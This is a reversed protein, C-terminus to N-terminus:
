LIRSAWLARQVSTVAVLFAMGSFWWSLLGPWLLCIAIFIVTEAGEILGSPMILATKRTDGAREPMTYNSRKEMLASLALWSVANVYFSGLLLGLPVALGDPAPSGIVLGVPVAAYVIFDALLDFYGGRDSTTGQQRAVAGDLGDILRNALWLGLALNQNSAAASGASGIGVVLGIATLTTPSVSGLARALPALAADRVGRLSGDFMSRVGWGIEWEAPDWNTLPCM